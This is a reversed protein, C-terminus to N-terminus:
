PAPRLTALLGFRGCPRQARDSFFRGDGTPLAGSRAVNDAPVGAAVLLRANAEWLDFRWRGPDPDPLLVQGVVPGFRDRAGAAVEEGVQYREPPVAPGLLAVVDVPRAGLEVMAAVTAGVVDAVTGRWGAHVCGLVRAAPDVLLVPLCDAVLVALVVGPAATVLADAEPVTDDHVRAGRGRDAPGVVAVERGHVQRYAVVDDLGAGLVAAARRRNERVADPDDGVHLGLNLGDYPGVSVGGARGTVVADVGLDVLGPWRLVEVGDVAAVEAALGPGPTM